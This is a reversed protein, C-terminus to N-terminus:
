VSVQYFYTAQGSGGARKQVPGAVVASVAALASVALTAFQM